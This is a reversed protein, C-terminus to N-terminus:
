FPSGSFFVSLVCYTHLKNRVAGDIKGHGEMDLVAGEFRVEWEIESHGEMNIVAGEIEKHGEM